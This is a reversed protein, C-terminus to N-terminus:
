KYLEYTYKRKSKVKGDPYFVDKEMKLGDVYKYEIVKEKTGNPKLYTERIKNGDKDYDFYIHEKEKGKKDYDISEITQGLADFREFSEKTQKGNSDEYDEQVVTVTKIKNSIVESKKQSLGTVGAGIFLIVLFRRIIIM